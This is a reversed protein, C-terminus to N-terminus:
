ETAKKQQLVTTSQELHEFLHQSWRRHAAANPHFGDSAFYEESLFSPLPLFSVDPWSKIQKRLAQNMVTARSGLFTQVSWPLSPFSAMPPAGSFVFAAKPYRQRLFLCLRRWELAWKRISTMEKCDNVGMAVFLVDAEAPLEHQFTPLIEAIRLGTKGLIFWEVSQENRQHIQQALLYTLNEQQTNLGVGAIPSEGISIIRIQEKTGSFVGTRSGSAEPLRLVTKRLQRGRFAVLPLLFTSIAYRFQPNM